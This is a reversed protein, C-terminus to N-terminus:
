TKLIMFRTQWSLGKPWGYDRSRDRHGTPQNLRMYAFGVVKDVSHGYALSSASGVVQGDVIVAEGGHGDLSDSEVAVYACTFPRENSDLSAQTAAKGVFDKDMKVFRMVDAEPLTVENTM